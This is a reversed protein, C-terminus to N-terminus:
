FESMSSDVADHRHKSNDPKNGLCCSVLRWKMEAKWIKNLHVLKCGSKLQFLIQAM